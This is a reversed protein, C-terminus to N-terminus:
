LDEGFIEPADDFEVWNTWSGKDLQILSESQCLETFEGFADDDLGDPKFEVRREDTNVNVKMDSPAFGFEDLYRICASRVATPDLDRQQDQGGIPQPQGSEDARNLYGQETQGGAGQAPSPAAQLGGDTARRNQPAQRRNQAAGNQAPPQGQQNQRPVSQREPAPREDLRDAVDDVTETLGDLRDVLGDLRDDDRSVATPDVGGSQKFRFLASLVHKCTEGAKAGDNNRGCGCGWEDLDVLCARYKEGDCEVVRYLMPGVAVAVLGSSEDVVEDPNVDGGFEREGSM